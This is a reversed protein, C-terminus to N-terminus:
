YCIVFLLYCIVFVGVVDMFLFLPTLLTKMIYSILYSLRHERKTENKVDTEKNRSRQFLPEPITGFTSSVLVPGNIV